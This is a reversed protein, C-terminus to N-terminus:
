QPWVGNEIPKLKSFDVKKLDMSVYKILQRKWTYSFHVDGNKSQIVAPYSYEGPQKELVHLARWQKGDKSMAINLPTRGSKTHNYILVHTGDQLTVADTGSNPNPLSTLQLDTWTKGHDYSWSEALHSERTRCLVQLSGDSHTLVSAQIVNFRYKLKVVEWTKGFDTTLEMQLRWGNDETSSPCILTGNKLLVPKNKIPGYVDEPLRTPTSWTKGNDHSLTVMGWWRPVDIGVKYFLMLPGNPVQYLVPNWTPYRKNKHQIGNAVSVPATWKGNLKRSFWIEVDPNNEHTGGFWAAVLGEPTEAMTSAHCSPFPASEYIFEEAKILPSNQGFLPITGVFLLIFLAFPSFSYHSNRM